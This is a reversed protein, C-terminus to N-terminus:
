HLRKNRLEEGFGRLNPSATKLAHAQRSERQRAFCYLNKEVASWVRDELNLKASALSKTDFPSVVGIGRM